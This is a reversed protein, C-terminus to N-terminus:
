HKDIRLEGDTLKINFTANGAGMTVTGTTENFADLYNSHFEGGTMDYSLVFGEATEPVKLEVKTKAGTIDLTAPIVSSEIDVKGDTSDVKAAYVAGDFDVDSNNTQVDLNNLTVKDADLKSDSMTGKITDITLEDVDLNSDTLDLTLTEIASAPVFVHLKVRNIGIDSGTHHGEIVLGGEADTVTMGYDVDASNIGIVTADLEAYPAEDKADKLEIDLGNARITLNALKGADLAEHINGSNGIDALAAVPVVLVVAMMLAVITQTISKKM